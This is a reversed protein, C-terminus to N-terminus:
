APNKIRSGHLNVDVTKVEHRHLIQTEVPAVEAVTEAASAASEASEASVSSETSVTTDVEESTDGESTQYAAAQEAAVQDLDDASPLGDSIVVGEVNEPEM